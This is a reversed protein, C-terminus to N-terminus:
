IALHTLKEHLRKMHKCASYPHYQKAPCQCDVIKYNDVTVKYYSLKGTKKNRSGM